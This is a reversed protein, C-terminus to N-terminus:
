LNKGSQEERNRFFAELDNSKVMVFDYIHSLEPDSLIEEAKEVSFPITQGADDELNQWDTILSRATIKRQVQDFANSKTDSMQLVDLDPSRLETAAKRYNPNGIRAIKLRINGIYDFWVGEVAKVADLRVANLKM